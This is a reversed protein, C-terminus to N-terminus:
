QFDTTSHHRSSYSRYPSDKHHDLNRHGPFRYSLLLQFQSLCYILIFVLSAFYLSLIIYNMIDMIGIKFITYLIKYAALISGKFTGTIKSVGIRKRYSVPIETCLYKMKAAKAQMEVTWGYTTDQMNLALLKNWKIARFPGLDTFDAGYLLKLLVSAIRNGVQAQPLLAGPEAKGTIRSGIVLDVNQHQIPEVLQAMENPHDSYDGDLFVLIDPPGLPSTTKLYEIGCLCASGYGQRSEHIVTAGMEIAKDATRDTSNNNVVVIEQVLKQDIDNLVLSISDQENFVPIIVSITGKM